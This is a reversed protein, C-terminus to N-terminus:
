APPKPRRWSRRTAKTTFFATRRATARTTTPFRITISTSGWTTCTCHLLLHRPPRRSRLRGRRCPHIHRAAPARVPIRGAEARLNRRGSQRLASPGTGCVVLLDQLGRNDFDAFLACATNDLVGVGAKETVDEFTGDGRNRYLRNPLGAPQCVYLDDFGDNDFDGAAVGNNCYVDMGVAGDLVTRWYDAGHLMQEVIRSPKARACARDCRHVGPENCHLRDGREGGLQQAKWNQSRM